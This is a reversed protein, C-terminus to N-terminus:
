IFWVRYALFAIVGVKKSTRPSLSAPVGGKGGGEMGEGVRELKNVVRKRTNGREFEVRGLEDNGKMISVM